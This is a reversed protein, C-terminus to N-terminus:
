SKRRQSLFARSLPFTTELANIQAECFDSMFHSPNWDPNSNKVVELAELITESVEDEIVFESNTHLRCKNQGSVYVIDRCTQMWYVYSTEM